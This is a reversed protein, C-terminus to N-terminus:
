VYVMLIGDELERKFTKSQNKNIILMYGKKISMSQMYEKLQKKGQEHLKQGHWIKLEVVFLEELFTVVIDLRKEAGIEVEKFSHGHGNVIPNLFVLFLMRLSKEQFEKSKFIEDKSYNKRIVEQFKQMVLNFNLKGDKKIYDKEENHTTKLKNDTDVKSILYNIIRETFIKNHIRVNEKENCVIYGHMYAAAVLPNQMEFAFERNGLVISEILEYLERDNELNKFLVDYLTNNDKAAKKAAQDIHKTEWVNTQQAPLIKEAVMKCIYSVLFPYGNTWFFIRESVAKTDMQIGTEAVFDALMPEIEAPKFSMDVEFPAAINWPSNLQSQSDPRIKQKLSRIDNVGALIVSHFTIDCDARARLYKDRLMGIFNLFLANNSSKDVEDIFLVLKKGIHLVIDSIGESLTNFDIVTFTKEEFFGNYASDSIKINRILNRLFTPCFAAESEFIASGMGEFSMTIPLYEGSKLLRRRLLFLTTTKGYQRPRNITFYEKREIMKMIQDLKGKTDVMYNEEPICTGTIHFSKM